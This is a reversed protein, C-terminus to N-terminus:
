GHSPRQNTGLTLGISCSSSSSTAWTRPLDIKDPKYRRRWAEENWGSPMGLIANRSKCRRWQWKWLSADGRSALEGGVGTQFTHLAAKEKSAYDKSYYACSTLRRIRTGRLDQLNRCPLAPVPRRASDGEYHRWGRM